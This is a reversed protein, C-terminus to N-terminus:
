AAPVRNRGGQKAAYLAKDVLRILGSSTMGDQPVLSATGASITIVGSVASHAHLVSMAEVERRMIEAVENSGQAGTDPLVVVFEEGGYRAAFDSPRKLSAQIVAAVKRLCHDGAQHGYHDNYPKFHDIDLMIVSIPRKERVARRWEKDLFEDFARRNALGTLGDRASVRRLVENAHRLKDLLRTNEFRLGISSTIVDNHNLSYRLLTVLYIVILVGITNEPEKWEAICRAAYPLMAPLMWVAPGSRIASHSVTTAASLSAIVLVFLSILGTDGSPFLIIASYGWVVGSAFTAYLYANKWRVGDFNSDRVRAFRVSLFARSLVIGIVLMFWLLIDSRPVIYRVSYCLVVAVVVSATQMTPIQSMILRVQERLIDDKLTENGGTHEVMTMIGLM